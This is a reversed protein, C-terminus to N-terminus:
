AAREAIMSQEAMWGALGVADRYPPFAERAVAALVAATCTPHAARTGTADAETTLEGCMCRGPTALVRSM